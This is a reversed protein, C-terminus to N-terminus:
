QQPGPAFVRDVRQPEALVQERYLGLARLVPADGLSFIDAGTDALHEVAAWSPAVFMDGASWDFRVGDVV